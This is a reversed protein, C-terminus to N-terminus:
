ADYGEDEEEEITRYEIWVGRIYTDPTRGYRGSGEYEQQSEFYWGVKHPGNDTDVYVSSVCRGYEKQM